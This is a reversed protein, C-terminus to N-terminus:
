WHRYYHPPHRRHRPEYVYVPPPPPVYGRWAGAAYGREYGAAYGSPYAPAPVYVPAPAYVPPPTGVSVNFGWSPGSNYACAQSSFALLLVAALILHKM